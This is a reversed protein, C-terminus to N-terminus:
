HEGCLILGLGFHVLEGDSLMTDTPVTTKEYPWSVSPIFINAKTSNLNSISNRWIVQETNTLNLETITQM